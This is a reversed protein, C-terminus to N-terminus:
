KITFGGDIIINQGTLYRNLDSVLFLICNSIEEPTALRKMPIDDEIIKLDEPTNTAVTLQTLTFGPSVSNVLINNCAFELAITRSMGILASKSTSYNSRGVRSVVSWISAVNIIRGWDNKKMHPILERCLSYPGMVNIKNILEYSECDTSLFDSVINIGANNILIDFGQSDKISSIFNEFSEGIKFDLCKFSLNENSNKQSLDDIDSEKTGTVTVKAGAELLKLSIEKGIGRTGGTVLASKNNLDINVSM